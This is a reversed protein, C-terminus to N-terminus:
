LAPGRALAAARQDDGLNAIVAQARVALGTSAQQHQSAPPPVERGMMTSTQEDAERPGAGPLIRESTRLLVTWAPPLIQGGNTAHYFRWIGRDARIEGRNESPRTMPSATPRAAGARASARARAGPLCALPWSLLALEDAIALSPDGPSLASAAIM